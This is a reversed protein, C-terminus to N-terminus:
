ENKKGGKKGFLILIEVIVCLVLIIAIHQSTSLGDAWVGRVPDGRFFELVFRCIGYSVLYIELCYKNSSRVKTYIILGLFIILNCISEVPQFPWLTVGPFKHNHIGFTSEIGYCCGSLACGMRAFVHFLPICPAFFDLKERIDAKLIKTCLIIGFLAGIVGGYFVIGGNILNDWIIKFSLGDEPIIGVVYLIKAFILLFVFGFVYYLILEKFSIKYKEMRFSNFFVVAAIGAIACLSYSSVQFNFITIHPLM